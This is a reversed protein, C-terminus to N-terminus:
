KEGLSYLRVLALLSLDHRNKTNCKRLINGVHFRITSETLMLSQAIHSYAIGHLLHLAVDMERETLGYEALAEAQLVHYKRVARLVDRRMRPRASFDSKGLRAYEKSVKLKQFYDERNSRM